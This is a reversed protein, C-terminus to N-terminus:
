KTLAEKAQRDLEADAEGAGDLELCLQLWEAAKSKDGLKQLAFGAQVACSVLM